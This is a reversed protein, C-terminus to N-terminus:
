VLIKHYNCTVYSKNGKDQSTFRLTYLKESNMMLAYSHSALPWRLFCFCCVFLILHTVFSKVPSLDHHESVKDFFKTLKVANTSGPALYKVNMSDQFITNLFMKLTSIYLLHWISWKMSDQFVTNQFMKPTSIHWMHWIGWIWTTKFFLIRFM